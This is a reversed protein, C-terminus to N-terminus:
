GSDENKNSLIRLVDASIKEPNKVGAVINKPDNEEVGLLIVGGATNAFASYTPWFEKPLDGSAKKFELKNDEQAEEILEKLGAADAQNM